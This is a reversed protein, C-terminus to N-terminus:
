GEIKKIEKKYRKNRVISGIKSGISYYNLRSLMWRMDHNGFKEKIGKQYQRNRIKEYNKREITENLLKSYTELESSIDYNVMIKKDFSFGEICYDKITNDEITVGLVFSKKNEKNLHIKIKKNISEGDDFIANGLSYAILSGNFKSIGQVTHSHHGHILVPGHESIKKALYIHEYAPYNTHEIGWHFSLIPFADKKEDSKLQDLVNDLTLLNVGKNKHKKKYNVGNTSYCCFGSLAIKQGCVETYVTKGDIGYWLINLRDLESITEEVGKRGFDYVHNNALSVANIGLEKLITGNEIDSRLHMSKCTLTKTRNTLPSELNAVVYDYKNLIFKLNDLYYSYNENKKVYCGILAIDGLFAIKM